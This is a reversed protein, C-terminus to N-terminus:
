TEDADFDSWHEAAAGAISERHADLWGTVTADLAERVEERPVDNLGERVFAAILLSKATAPDLGRSELYFLAAEELAGATSGHSCKVDDAYIELEPKADNEAKPSLLLANSLQYGDTRQAGPQVRIKGQFVNRGTEAVVSKFVERCRCDPAGHDLFTTNDVHMNGTVLSAGSVQAHAHPGNFTVRVDNRTLRGGTTLFFSRYDAREELSAFVGATHVTGAGGTHAKVHDLRAGRAMVIETGLTVLREGGGGVHSELLAAEAGQEMVVLVRAHSATEAEGEPSIFVLRLPTAAKVGAPVRIVAGDRMLALNLGQVPEGTLPLSQGLRSALWGPADKLLEGLPEVQVGKPLGRLRSLDPRFFGNVFVMAPGDLAAFPDPSLNERLVAGEFPEAPPFHQGLAHRLDTFKWAEIRRHPLGTHRFRALGRARLTALWGPAAARAANEGDSVYAADLADDVASTKIM